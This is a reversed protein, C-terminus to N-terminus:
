CKAILDYRFDSYILTADQAIARAEAFGASRCLTELWNKDLWSGIIPRKQEIGDFYAKERTSDNFYGWLKSRDPVDGVFLIGGSKMWKRIKRIMSVIDSEDLYQIGAYWLVKTFSGTEFSLERVDQAQARVNPIQRANIRDILQPSLDASDVSKVFPAFAATFLGNGCCLDLITDSSKLELQNTVSDLTYQWEAEGIPRKNRTRLVQTQEDKKSLDQTYELWFKRWYEQRDM